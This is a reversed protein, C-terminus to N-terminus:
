VKTSKFTKSLSASTSQSCQDSMKLDSRFSRYTEVVQSRPGFNPGPALLGLSDSFLSFFLLYHTVARTPSDRPSVIDGRIPSIESM